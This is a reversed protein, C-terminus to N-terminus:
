NEDLQYQFLGGFEVLDCHMQPNRKKLMANYEDLLTIPANQM